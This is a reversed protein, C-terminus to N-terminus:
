FDTSIILISENDGYQGINRAAGLPNQQNNVVTSNSIILNTDNSLHIGHDANGTVTVDDISVNASTAFRMGHGSPSNTYTGGEVFVDNTRLVYFNHYLDIDAFGNLSCKLGICDLHNVGKIHVGTSGFNRVEVRELSINQLDMSAPDSPLGGGELFIGLNGSRGMDSDDSTDISGRLKFDQFRVDTLTGDSYIMPEDVTDAVSSDWNLVTGFGEGIIDVGSRPTLSESVFYNGDELYVVGGGADAIIDIAVQINDTGPAVNTFATMANTKGLNGILAFADGLINVNGDLDIDGQAYSTASSGLNGVLSFADGLVDVTGDLNLDGLFTGTERNSTKVYNAIHTQLDAETIQGDGTLDLQVLSGIAASGINGVYLNVDAIDVDGNADFDGTLSRDTSAQADVNACVCFAASVLIVTFTVTFKM